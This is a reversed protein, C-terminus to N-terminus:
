LLNNQGLFIRIEKDVEDHLYKDLWTITKEMFHIGHGARPNHSSGMRGSPFRGTDIFTIMDAWFGEDNFYEAEFDYPKWEGPKSWQKGESFDFRIHIDNGDISYYVSHQLTYTRTYNQPAYRNYWYQRIFVQIKRVTDQAVKELIRSMEKKLLKERKKQQSITYRYASDITDFKQVFIM